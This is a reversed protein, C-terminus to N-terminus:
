DVSLNLRSKSALNLILGVLSLAVIVSNISLFLTKSMENMVDLDSIMIYFSNWIIHM